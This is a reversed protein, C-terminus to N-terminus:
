NQTQDIEFPRLNEKYQEYFKAGV